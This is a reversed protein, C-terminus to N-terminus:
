RCPYTGSYIEIEEKGARLWMDMTAGLPTRYFQVQIRARGRPGSLATSFSGQRMGGGSEFYGTWAFLGPTLPAGTLAIVQANSEAMRIACDYEPTTKIGFGFVGLLVIPVLAGGIAALILRSRSSTQGSASSVEAAAEDTSMTGSKGDAHDGMRQGLKGIEHKQLKTRNPRKACCFVGM